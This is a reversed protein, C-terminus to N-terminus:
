MLIESIGRTAKMAGTGWSDIAVGYAQQVTLGVKAASAGNGVVHLGTKFKGGGSGALMMPVGVISHNKAYSVDSHALILTRDLLTGDGEKVSAMATVFDAWAEMNQIVFTDVVPQYGKERDVLEEHTSQHFGTSDGIRRLDSFATAFTMNFVKTQNCALAMALMDAMLKHANKRRSM